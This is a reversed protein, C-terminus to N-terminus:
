LKVQVCFVLISSFHRFDSSESLNTLFIYLKPTYYRREVLHRDYQKNFLTVLKKNITSEGVYIRNALPRGKHECLIHCM